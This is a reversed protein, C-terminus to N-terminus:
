LSGAFCRCNISEGASLGEWMPWPTREGSPLRFWKNPDDGKADALPIMKGDMEYHRRGGSRGDNGYANWVIMEVGADGYAEIIAANRVKALETRAITQARAFSFLYERGGADLDEQTRRWDATVRAEAASGRLPVDRGGPGFWQRAIRRGVENASPVPQENLADTIIRKLSQRVRDETEKSILVVKNLLKRNWEELIEPRIKWGRVVQRGSEQAEMLGYKSLLNYLELELSSLDEIKAKAVVSRKLGRVGGRDLTATAQRYREQAVKRMWRLIAASLPRARSAVQTNHQTLRRSVRKDFRNVEPLDFCVDPSQLIAAQATM